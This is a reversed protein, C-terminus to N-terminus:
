NEVFREVQRLELCDAESQNESVVDGAIWMALEGQGGRVAIQM